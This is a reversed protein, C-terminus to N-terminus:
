NAGEELKTQEALEFALELYDGFAEKNLESSMHGLNCKRQNKVTKLRDLLMLNVAAGVLEETFPVGCYTDEMRKGWAKYALAKSGPSSAMFLDRGHVGNDVAAQDIKRFARGYQSWAELFAASYMGLDAM